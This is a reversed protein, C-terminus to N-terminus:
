FEPVPAPEVCYTRGSWYDRLAAETSRFALDAWPVEAQTFRRAELSEEDVALTGGTPTAKYVVVIPTTGPYSYIGVLGDLRVDLGVEERAERRAADEVVEGRDVYGGPFVWQGYGPEIARRALVVGEGMRIITGVAVKPDIYYIFGCAGCVLRAPEGPRLHRPTFPGGCVPCFRFRSADSMLVM